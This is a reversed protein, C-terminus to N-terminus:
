DISQPLLSGTNYVLMRISSRDDSDNGAIAATFACESFTDLASIDKEAYFAHRGNCSQHLLSFSDLRCAIPIFEMHSRQWFLIGDLTCFQDFSNEAGPSCDDRIEQIQSHSRRVRDKVCCSQPCEKAVPVVPHYIIGNRQKIFLPVVGRRFQQDGTVLLDLLDAPSQRLELQLVYLREADM